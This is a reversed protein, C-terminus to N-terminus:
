PTADSTTTPYGSPVSYSQLESVLNCTRHKWASASIAQLPQPGNSSRCHQLLPPGRVSLAM